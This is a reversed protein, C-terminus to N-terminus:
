ETKSMMSKKGVYTMKRGKQSTTVPKVVSKDGKTQLLLQNRENTLYRLDFFSKKDNLNM